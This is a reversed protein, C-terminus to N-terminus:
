EYGPGSQRGDTEAGGGNRSDGVTARRGYWFTAEGYRRSKGLQLGDPWTVEGSRTAREVVVLADPALWGRALLALV